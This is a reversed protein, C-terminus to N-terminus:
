RMFYTKWSRLSLSDDMERKGSQTARPGALLARGAQTSTHTVTTEELPDSKRKGGGTMSVVNIVNRYVQRKYM